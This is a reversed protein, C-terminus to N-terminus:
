RALAKRAEWVALEVPEPYAGIRADGLLTAEWVDGREPKWPEAPRFTRTRDGMTADHFTVTRETRTRSTKPEIQKAKALGARDLYRLGRRARQGASKIDQATWSSASATGREILLNRKGVTEGIYRVTGEEPTHLQLWRLAELATDYPNPGPKKEMVLVSEDAVPAPWVVLEDVTRGAALHDDVGAKRGGRAPPPACVEVDEM